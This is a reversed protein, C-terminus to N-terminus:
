AARRLSVVPLHGRGDVHEVVLRLRGRVRRRMARTGDGRPRIRSRTELAPRQFAPLLRDRIEAPTAGRLTQHPRLTNYWRVFSGLEAQMPSFALPVLIKRFGEEKLTLMFRELIALAGHQGIAGFRARIRRARCWDRYDLRFQAGQDTVIYKPTAGAIAIAEDLLACTEAATPQKRFVGAHVVARSYHDLVVCVWWCFPWRQLIAFPLWPVFFGLATPVVSFDSHWADHPQRAKVAARRRQTVSPQSRPPTPSSREKLIRRVTSPALALGARGLMQAIRVKGMSPCSEKLSRVLERMFEPFRHIPTPMRLLAASGEEDVRGLWSTITLATVLFREALEAVTLGTAAKFALIRLREEPLYHPRRPAPVRSLRSQLLRNEEEVL